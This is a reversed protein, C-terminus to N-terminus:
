IPNRSDAYLFFSLQIIWTIIYFLVSTFKIFLIYGQM